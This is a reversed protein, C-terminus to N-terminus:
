ELVGDVTVLFTVTDNTVAASFNCSINGFSYGMARVNGMEIPM